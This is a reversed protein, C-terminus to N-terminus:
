GVMPSAPSAVPLAPGGYAVATEIRKLVFRLGSPKIAM